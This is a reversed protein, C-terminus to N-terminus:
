ESIVEYFIVSSMNEKDNSLAEASIVTDDECIIPTPLNLSSISFEEDFRGYVSPEFTVSEDGVQIDLEAGIFGFTNDDDGGGSLSIDHIILKENEAVNLNLIEDGDTLGNAIIQTYNTIENFTHLAQAELNGDQNDIITVEDPNAGGGRM